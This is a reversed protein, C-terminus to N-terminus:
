VVKHVVLTIPTLTPIIHDQPTLLLAPLQVARMTKQKQQMELVARLKARQGVLLTQLHIRAPGM